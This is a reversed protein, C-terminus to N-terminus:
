SAGGIAEARDLIMRGTIEGDGDRALLEGIIAATERLKDAHDRQRRAWATTIIRQRIPIPIRM